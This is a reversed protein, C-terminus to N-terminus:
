NQEDDTSTIIEVIMQNKDNNLTNYNNDNDDDIIEIVLSTRRYKEPIINQIQQLFFKHHSFTSSSNKQIINQLLNNNNNNNDQQQVTDFFYVELNEDFNLGNWEFNNNLESKCNKYYYPIQGTQFNNDFVLTNHTDLEIMLNYYNENIKTRELSLYVDLLYNYFEQFEQPYNLINDNKYLMGIDNLIFPLLQFKVPIEQKELAVLEPVILVFVKILIPPLYYPYIAFVNAFLKEATEVNKCRFKKNKKFICTFLKYRQMYSLRTLRTLLEWLMNKCKLEEWLKKYHIQNESSVVILHEIPEQQQQEHRKYNKM